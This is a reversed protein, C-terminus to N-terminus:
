EKRKLHGVFSNAGVIEGPESIFSAHTLFHHSADTVVQLEGAKSVMRVYSPPKPKPVPTPTPKPKEAVPKPPEKTAEAKAPEPDSESELNRRRSAVFSGKKEAKKGSEIATLSHLLRFRSQVRE